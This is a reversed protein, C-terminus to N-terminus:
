HGGEQHGAGQDDEPGAGGDGEQLAEEEEGEEGQGPHWSIISLQLGPVHM